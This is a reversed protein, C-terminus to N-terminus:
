LDAKKFFHMCCWATALGFPIIITAPLLYDPFREPVAELRFISATLHFPLFKVWPATEQFLFVVISEVTAYGFYAVLAYQWVRLVFALSVAISSFFMSTVLICVLSSMFVSTDFYTTKQITALFSVILVYLSAAIIALAGALILKFLCYSRRSLGNSILKLAYGNRFENCINLIITFPIGSIILTAFGSNVVKFTQFDFTGYQFFNKADLRTELLAMLLIYVIIIVVFTRVYKTIEISAIRIM